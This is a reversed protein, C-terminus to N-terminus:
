IQPGVPLYGLQLHPLWLHNSVNVFVCTEVAQLHAVEREERFWFQWSLTYFVEPGLRVACQVEDWGV